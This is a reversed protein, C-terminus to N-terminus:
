GRVRPPLPVQRPWDNPVIFVREVRSAEEVLHCLMVQQPGHREILPIVRAMELHAPQFAAHQPPALWHPKALWAMYLPPHRQAALAPWDKLYCWTGRRHNTTAGAPPPMTVHWPYFLVGPMALRHTLQHLWHEPSMEKRNADGFSADGSSADRPFLWQRIVTQAPNSKSIPLQHHRLHSCKLALSDVGGPGIWRSKSTIDGPGDPLGLYFKIAVELHIPAPNHRTRYLIDLEGLTNRRQTIRLNKALLRTNPAHDLLLHWLREHYRGMRMAPTNDLTRLKDSLQTLWLTLDATFCPAQLAREQAAQEQFAQEQVVSTQFGLEHLTPRGGSPIPPPLDVVDPTSILWALDRATKSDLTGSLREHPDDGWVCVGGKNCRM